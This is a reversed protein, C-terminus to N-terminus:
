LVVNYSGIASALLKSGIDLKKSMFVSKMESSVVVPLREADVKSIFDQVRHLCETKWETM